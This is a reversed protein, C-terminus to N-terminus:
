KLLKGVVMGALIALGGFLLMRSGNKLVNAHFRKASGAGLVFLAVLSAVISLPMAKSTPFFIYPFLPIFGAFFYSFFMIVGGVVPLKMSAGRKYIFEEASSESLASGVGMSLAEVVILVMGALFITARDLDAIAIGSVMGVTSVLSDEVGFTFNRIYSADKIKSQKSM